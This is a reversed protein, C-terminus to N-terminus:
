DNTCSSYMPLVKSFQIPTEYKLSEHPRGFNYEILWETLKQNFIEPNSHFNGHSLFERQFTQNFRENEPNDKPTRVRSYYQKIGLKACATKFYKEFETGNDHGVRPVKGDLLYYLRYLFDESNVTSKSKYMRAFAVKGYKDIATFIYRKIGNWYIVVTDLCIIYGATKQYASLKNLGLETIRKKKQARKRKASIRATKIVNRYLKNEEIVKQIKWSSILEGYKLEYKKVLKIKGYDMFQKRLAIIRQKEIATIERQRVHKPAKSEDEFRYLSYLNEANFKAYWKYFTKRAIGFHRCTQCANNGRHYFVIWELRRQAQKSIKLIKAVKLWREQEDMLKLVPILYPWINMLKITESM